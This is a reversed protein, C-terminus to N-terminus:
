ATSAASSVEAPLNEHFKRGETTAVIIGVRVAWDGFPEHEGKQFRHEDEAVATSARKWADGSLRERAYRAFLPTLASVIADENVAERYLKSVRQGFFGAGLYLNYIGPARGVLGVEAVYPRACGNACGTMRLTIADSHLGAAEIAEDLRDTLNPLYRESEALALGCTPLAVCAMSNLRLGTLVTNAIGYEALIADVKSVNNNDVRALMMNQNATLIFEPILGSKALFLLGSKLRYNNGNRGGDRVRGNAVFLTYSSTGNGSDQWGYTDGNSSFRYPRPKELEFGVRKSVEDRFKDLGMTDVTYKLRAHKRNTRDGFDRQTTVVAEAVAIAHETPVFCFESAARPYTSQVGHTMGMGGGVTVTFGALTGDDNAIAIFSLDHAYVDVDNSPPIAVAIKFKRPLYTPGYIPESEGAGSGAILEDELWIEHYAGTRPTLHDSLASAFDLAGSHLPGAAPAATCMVNRNVDGCAAITDM